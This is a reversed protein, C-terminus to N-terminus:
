YGGTKPLLHVIWESDSNTMRAARLRMMVLEGNKKRHKVNGFFSQEFKNVHIDDLIKDLDEGHWLETIRLGIFEHQAYQCFNLAARNGDMITLTKSNFVWVAHNYFHITKNVAINVRAQINWEM